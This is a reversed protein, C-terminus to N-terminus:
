KPFEDNFMYITYLVKECVDAFRESNTEEIDGDGAFHLTDYWAHGIEHFLVKLPNYKHDRCVRINIWILARMDPYGPLQSGYVTDKDAWKPARGGVRVTPCFDPHIKLYDWCEATIAQYQIQIESIKM